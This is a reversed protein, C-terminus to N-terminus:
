LNDYVCITWHENPNNRRKSNISCRSDYLQKSCRISKRTYKTQAHSKQVNDSAIFMSFAPFVSTTLNVRQNVSAITIV